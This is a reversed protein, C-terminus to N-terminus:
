GDTSEEQIDLGESPSDDRVAEIMHYEWVTGMELCERVCAPDDWWWKAGTVFHGWIHKWLLRGVLSRAEAKTVRENLVDPEVNAQPNTQVAVPSPLHSRASSPVAYFKTTTITSGQGRLSANALWKPFFKSPYSCRSTLELNKLLNARLWTRLCPGSTGTLPTPDMILIRLSGKQRLRSRVYSLAPPVEDLTFAAPLSLSIVTDYDRTATPFESVSMSEVHINRLNPAFSQSM